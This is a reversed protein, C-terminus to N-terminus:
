MLGKYLLEELEGLEWSWKTSPGFKIIKEHHAKTIVNRTWYSQMILQHLLTRYMGIPTKQLDQGRGHFFFDLTLKSPNMVRFKRFLFAMVTSKGTGPGGMIWLLGSDQQLWKRYSEHDLIWGCTNDLATNAQGERSEM